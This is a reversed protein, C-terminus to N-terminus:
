LRRINIKEKTIGPTYQFIHRRGEEEGGFWERCPLPSNLQNSGGGDKIRALM